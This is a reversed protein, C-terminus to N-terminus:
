GSDLGAPPPLALAESYALALLTLRMGPISPAGWWATHPNTRFRSRLHTGAQYFAVTPLLPVTANGELEAGKIM